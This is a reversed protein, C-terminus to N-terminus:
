PKGFSLKTGTGLKIFPQLPGRVNVDLFVPAKAKPDDPMGSLHIVATRGEADPEPSFTVDLSDARIPILGLEAKDLGPYYKVITPSLNGTILGPTPALRVQAPEDSRLVLRGDGIELGKGATWGLRVEGDVRGFAGTVVEPVLAAVDQLGIRTLQLHLQARLPELSVTFPSAVATGGAIEIAAASIEATLRDKLWGTIELNRAGLRKTTITRITLRAPQTSRVTKAGADFAFAAEFGVGDLTWGETENRVQGDLWSIAVSGRPVGRELEGAGTILWKGTASLGATAGGATATAPGFWVAADATTEELQWTGTGTRVNVLGRLVVHLGKGEATVGVKRVVDDVREATVHWEVAPAGALFGPALQGSLAGDIPPVLWPADQAHAGAVGALLVAAILLLRRSSPVSSLSFAISVRVRRVLGARRAPALRGRAPGAATM